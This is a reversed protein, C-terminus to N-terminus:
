ETWWEEYRLALYYGDTDKKVSVYMGVKAIICSGDPNIYDGYECDIEDKTYALVEEKTKNFLVSGEFSYGQADPQLFAHPLTEIYENAKKAAWEYDAKTLGAKKTTVAVKKTTAKAATKKATTKPAAKKTTAATKKATTKAATVKATSAAESKKELNSTTVTTLQATTPETAAVTTVSAATTIAATTYTNDTVNNATNGGCSAMVAICFAATIIMTFTRKM